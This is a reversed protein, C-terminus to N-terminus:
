FDANLLMLMELNRINGGLQHDPSRPHSIDGDRRLLEDEDSLMQFRTPAKLNKKGRPPTSGAPARGKRSKSFDASSINPTEPGM